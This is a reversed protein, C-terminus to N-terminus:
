RDIPRAAGAAVALECNGDRHRNLRNAIDILPPDIGILRQDPPRIAFTRHMDERLDGRCVAIREVLSAPDLRDFHCTSQSDFAAEVDIKKGLATYSGFAQM